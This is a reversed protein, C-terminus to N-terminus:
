VHGMGKVIDRVTNRDTNRERERERVHERQHNAWRTDASGHLGIM